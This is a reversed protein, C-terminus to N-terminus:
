YCIEELLGVDEWAGGLLAEIQLDISWDFAKPWWSCSMWIIVDERSNKDLLFKENKWVNREKIYAKCM